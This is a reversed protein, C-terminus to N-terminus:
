GNPADAPVTAPGTARVSRRVAALCFGTLALASVFTVAHVVPNVAPVFGIVVVPLQVVAVLALLLGRRRGGWLYATWLPATAVALTLVDLAVHVYPNHLNNHFFALPPAAM